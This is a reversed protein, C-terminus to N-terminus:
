RVDIRIPAEGILVKRDTYWAEEFPRKAVMLGEPQPLLRGNRGQQTSSLALRRNLSEEHQLCIQPNASWSAKGTSYATAESGRQYGVAGGDPRKSLCILGGLRM